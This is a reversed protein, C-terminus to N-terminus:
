VKRNRLIVSEAMRKDFVTNRRSSTFLEGTSEDIAPITKEISRGITGAPPNPDPVLIKKDSIDELADKCHKVKRTEASLKSERKELKDIEARANEENFPM